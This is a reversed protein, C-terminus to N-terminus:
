VVHRKIILLSSALQKFFKWCDTVCNCINYRILDSKWLSSSAVGYLKLSQTVVYSADRCSHWRCENLWRTLYYCTDQNFYWAFNVLFIINSWCTDIKPLDELRCSSTDIIQIIKKVSLFRRVCTCINTDTIHFIFLMHYTHSDFSGYRQDAHAFEISVYIHLRTGLSKRRPEKGSSLAQTRPQYIHVKLKHCPTSNSQLWAGQRFVEVTRHIAKHWKPM